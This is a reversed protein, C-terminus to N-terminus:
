AAKIGYLAFTAGAAFNSGSESRLEIVTIASTSRWLSV